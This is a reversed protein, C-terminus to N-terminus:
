EVQPEIDNAKFPLYDGRTRRHVKGASLISLEDAMVCIGLAQPNMSSKISLHLKNCMVM